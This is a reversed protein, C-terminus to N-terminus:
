LHWICGPKSADMSAHLSSGIYALMPSDLREERADKLDVLLRSKSDGRLHFVVRTCATSPGSTKIYMIAQHSCSCLFDLASNLPSFGILQRPCHLAKQSQLRPCIRSSTIRLYQSTALLTTIGHVTGARISAFAAHIIIKRRISQMIFEQNSTCTQVPM